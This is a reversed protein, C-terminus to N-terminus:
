VAYINDIVETIWMKVPYLDPDINMERAPIIRRYVKVVVIADNGM